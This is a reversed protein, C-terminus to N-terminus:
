LRTELSLKFTRGSAPFVEYLSFAHSYIEDDLANQVAGILRLNKHLQYAARLDVRWYAPLRFSDQIDGGREGVHNATAGFALRDTAEYSADLAFTHRPVNRLREGVFSVNTDKTTESDTLAYAAYINFRDAPRAQASLELGRVRQEGISIQFSPNQPDSVSVDDRTIQYVAANLSVRDNLLRLRIGAEYQIGTEPDLPAGGVRTAETPM